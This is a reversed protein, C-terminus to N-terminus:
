IGRASSSEAFVTAVMPQHEIGERGPQIGTMRERGFEHEAQITFHFISGKGPWSETWMQGGMMKVLRRSTALGLGIGQYKRAFSDDAQSFPEFILDRMQLPIGIGTDSVAFHIKQDSEPRVSVLIEGRESFKIANDLLNELIQCFRNSDGCIMKPVNEDVICELSLGKEFAASAVRGLSAKISSHLDFPLNALGILGKEMRSIDLINNIHALLMEGSCSITEVFDRQEPTLGDDMLLLSSMGMIANLPTRLEHSMNAMFAEKARDAEKSADKAKILEAELKDIIGVAITLGAIDEV